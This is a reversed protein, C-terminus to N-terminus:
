LKPLFRGLLAATFRRWDGYRLACNVGCRVFILPRVPRLSALLHTAPACALRSGGRVEIRDATSGPSRAGSVKSWLGQERLCPQYFRALGCLGCPSSRAM